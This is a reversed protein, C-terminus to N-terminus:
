VFFIGTACVCLHGCPIFAHTTEQEAVFPVCNNTLLATPSEVTSSDNNNRTNSGDNAATNTDSTTWSSAVAVCNCLTTGYVSYTRCSTMRVSGRRCCHDKHHYFGQQGDSTSPADPYPNSSWINSLCSLYLDTTTRGPRRRKQRQSRHHLWNKKLGL